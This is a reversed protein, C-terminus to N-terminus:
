KVMRWCENFIGQVERQDWLLDRAEHTKLVYSENHYDNGDELYCWIGFNAFSSRVRRSQEAQSAFSLSFHPNIKRRPRVQETLMGIYHIIICKVSAPSDNVKLCYNALEELSL